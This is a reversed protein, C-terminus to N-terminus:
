CPVGINIGCYMVQKTYSEHTCFDHTRIRFRYQLLSVQLRRSAYIQGIELAVPLLPSVIQSLIAICYTWKTIWNGKQGTHYQMSWHCPNAPCFILQCSESVHIYAVLKEM